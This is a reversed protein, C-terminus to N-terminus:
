ACRFIIRNSHMSIFVTNILILSIILTVSSFLSNTFLLVASLFHGLHSGSPRAPLRPSSPAAGWVGLTGLLFFHSM